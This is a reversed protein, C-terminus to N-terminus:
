SQVRLNDAMAVTHRHEISEDRVDFALGTNPESRM